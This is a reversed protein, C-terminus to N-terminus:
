DIGKDVAYSLTHLNARVIAYPYKKVSYYLEDWYLPLKESATERMLALTSNFTGRFEIQIGHYIIAHGDLQYVKRDPQTRISMLTLNKQKELQQRLAIVIKDPSSLKSKFENFLKDLKAKKAKASALKKFEDTSAPELIAKSLDSTKKEIRQLNSKTRKIQNVSLNIREQLPVVMLIFWVGYVILLGLMLIFVRIQFSVQELKAEYSKLKKQFLSASM